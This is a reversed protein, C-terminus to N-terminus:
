RIIRGLNFVEHALFGCLRCPRGLCLPLLFESEFRNSLMTDTQGLRRGISVDLLNNRLAICKRPVRSKVRVIVSHSFVLVKAIPILFYSDPLVKM